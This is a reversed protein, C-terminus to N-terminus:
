PWEGGCIFELSRSMALYARWPWEGGCIGLDTWLVIVKVFSPMYFALWLWKHETPSRSECLGPPRLMLWWHEQRDEPIWDLHGFIFPGVSSMQFAASSDRLLRSLSSVREAVVQCMCWLSFLCMCKLWHSWRQFFTDGLINSTIRDSCPDGFSCVCVVATFFISPNVFEFWQCQGPYIDVSLRTAHGM